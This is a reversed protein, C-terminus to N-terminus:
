RPGVRITFTEGAGLKRTAPSQIGRVEYRFDGAARAVTRVQRPQLDHAVGDVVITVPGTWGNVLEIRGWGAPVPPSYNAQQQTPIRQIEALKRDLEKRLEAVQQALERLKPEAEKAKPVAAQKRAEADLVEARREDAKATDAQGTAVLLKARARYAEAAEKMLAKHNDGGMEELIELEQAYLLILM